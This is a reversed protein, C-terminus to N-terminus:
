RSRQEIGRWIEDRRRADVVVITALLIFLFFIALYYGNAFIFYCFLLIIGVIAWVFIHYFATFIVRVLYKYPSFFNSDMSVDVYESSRYLLYNLLEIKDYLYARTNRYEDGSPGNAGQISLKEVIKALCHFHESPIIYSCKSLVSEFEELGYNYKENNTRLVLIGSWYYLPSFIEKLRFEWERNVAYNRKNALKFVFDKVFWSIIALSVPFILRDLYEM